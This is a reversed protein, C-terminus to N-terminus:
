LESLYKFDNRISEWVPKDYEEHELVFYAAYTAAEQIAKMDLCGEAMDVNELAENIQKMHILEIKSGWKKIYTVPDVGANM